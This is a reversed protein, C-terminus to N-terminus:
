PPPKGGDKDPSVVVKQGERFETSPNVMVRDGDRLGAIIEMEHGFDRGVQVPAYHVTSDEEVRAVFSGNARLIFANSPILLPPQPRVLRLIVQAYMGPALRRDPNPVALETLMTRSGPDVAQASRSVEGQFERKPFADFRLRAALGPKILPLFVEPVPIFIRLPDVQAVRFLERTGQTSGESVLMGVDVTRSTVTADFPAHIQEFSQLEELRKVNAEQARIAAQAAKVDADRAQLASQKEDAEQQSVAHEKALTAWRQAAIRALERNAEAQALSAQAVALTALAQRLQQDIEPSEIEAILQGSKVSDGIDFYYKRLYGNVRAYLPTELFARATGALELESESPAAHIRVVKVESTRSASDRAEMELESSRRLRPMIGAALLTAALGLFGLGLALSRGWGGAGERTAPAAPLAGPRAAPEKSVRLGSDELPMM